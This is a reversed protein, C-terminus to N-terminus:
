FECCTCIPSADLFAPLNLMEVSFNGQNVTMLYDGQNDPLVSLDNTGDNVNVAFQELAEDDPIVAMETKTLAYM